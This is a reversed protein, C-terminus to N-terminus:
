TRAAVPMSDAMPDDTDSESIGFRAHIRRLPAPAWWNAAGLLRMFAPVLVGRVLTADLLIALPIGIGLGKVYSISSFTLGVFALALLLAAYTVVRGTRELGVAVAEQNQGTRRYEETIRSLIFVAYDLSLAFAIAIVVIPALWTLGGTVVIDGVLWQLHGQQLVFVLAGFTASLSLASLLIAKLPLLVSGTLLFLLIFSGIVLIALAIPMRKGLLDFTDVSVAPTGGVAVPFPATTARVARVMRAGDDGNPDVKSVLSLYTADAAAFLQQSAADPEAVKRGDQYSGTLADVRAINEIKSLQTAYQDIDATRSAPNGIKTAVVQMPDQERNDFNSRVASAVQASQASPPLIQEDPLRLKLDAAPLALFLLFALVALLCPVPRRMVFTALKHWSGDSDARAVVGRRRRRRGEVRPGMWVLLAPVLVLTLAAATLATFMSGVALSRFVTFPLVLMSGLAIAVTIGSFVVTRGVTRMTTRIADPIAAGGALQERYRSIFLLSYDVALGLGLFTTVMSVIDATELFFSVVFLMGMVVVTTAIAVALPVLAALISGFIVALLILVVPMFFGEAKLSDQAATDLAEVWMLGGGGITVRLGQVTGSYTGKLEKARAQVTDFDGDITGLVLAQKADTGRMATSKTTWYSVVHSVGAEAAVQETLRLGAATVAPDDM